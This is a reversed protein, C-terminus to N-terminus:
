DIDRFITNFFVQPDNSGTAFVTAETQDDLNLDFASVTTSGNMIRCHRMGSTTEVFASSGAFPVPGVTESDAVLALTSPYANVFHITGKGSQPEAVADTLLQIRFTGRQVQGTLLVSYETDKELTTPIQTLVEVASNARHVLIVVPGPDVPVYATAEAFRATQIVQGNISISVPAEDLAGHMIRLATSTTAGDKGGGGGGSCSTLSLGFFLASLIFFRFSTM